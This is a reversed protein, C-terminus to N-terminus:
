ARRQARELRDAIAHGLGSRIPCPEALIMEIGLRDLERLLAFLNRAAEVLDGSVSLSRAAVPRGLRTSTRRAAGNPDGSFLLLGIRGGARTGEVLRGIEPLGARDVPGPLLRLPTGPAYHSELMGPGAPPGGRAPRLPRGVAAEIEAAPTGGPRLLSLDGEAGIVVVTSEIGMECRGADLILEVRDGLEAAVDEASTPSVRGFRNASPATLPTGAAAILGRAVEHRPMRVAVTPLGAAVLDPLDPHRPLVLTLPGPWFRRALAEVTSRQPRPLAPDVIRLDVLAAAYELGIPPAFAVHVILPDFTPRDKAAFTRALADVRFAAGALGYVTETPMGVLRGDRILEAALAVGQRDAPVIRARMILEV